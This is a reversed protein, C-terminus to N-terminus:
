ESRGSVHDRTSIIVRQVSPTLERLESRAFGARNFIPEYEEFTYADGAPTTALMTLAFSAAEVPTVRSADPVFELTVARGGPALAAHVRRLLTECGAPDFHHLINTLLILDYGSGYDVGFADGPLTTFREAVGAKRANEVAVSLVNPWDLATVRANPNHQALTIGFMGHGAAIDLVKWPKGAGADLLVALLQASFSAVGAMAKAFDVWMPHEPAISGQAEIATGGKRVAPTLSAFAQRLTPSAMFDIANGIYIPSRRDLLPGTEADLAYRGGNKTILGAATLADCLMRVGREAAGCRAAIAAPTDKGEAIATFVDLEVAAKLAETRQYATFTSFLLPLGSPEAM